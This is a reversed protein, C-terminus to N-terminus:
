DEQNITLQFGQSSVALTKKHGCDKSFIYIGAAAGYPFVKGL